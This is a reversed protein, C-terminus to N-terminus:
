QFRNRQHFDPTNILRYWYGGHSQKLQIEPSEKFYPFGHMGAMFREQQDYGGPVGIIYQGATTKGLLIHGFHYYGHALFRNNRLAREQSHLIYMDRPQIKHCDYIEGDPFPDFSEGPLSFHPLVTEPDSPYISPSGSSPEEPSSICEEYETTEPSLEQIVLETESPANIPENETAPTEKESSLIIEDPKEKFEDPIIPVDDWETGFFAGGDTILLIGGIDALGIGNQDLNDTMCSLISQIGNQITMCSGITIGKAGKPTRLIGKIDCSTDAPLGPCKVHVEIQCKSDRAEVRIFGCNEEKKGKRYEYVYAVFRQYAPM